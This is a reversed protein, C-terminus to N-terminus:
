YLYSNPAGTANRRHIRGDISPVAGDIPPLPHRSTGNVTRVDRPSRFDDLICEAIRPHDIAALQGEM